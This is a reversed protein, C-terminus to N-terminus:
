ADELHTAPDATKVCAQEAIKYKISKDKRIPHCHIAPRGEFQKSSSNTDKQGRSVM